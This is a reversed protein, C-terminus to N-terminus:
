FPQARSNNLSTKETHTHLKTIKISDATMLNTVDPRVYLSHRNMLDATAPQMLRSDMFKTKIM